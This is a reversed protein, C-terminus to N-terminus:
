IRDMFRVQGKKNVTNQKEEVPKAKPQAYASQLSDTISGKCAKCFRGTLIPAGCKECEIGVQSSESFALREERIWQKIQSVSVDNEESVENVGADKHERIYEKVQYFKEELAASCAACIPKGSGLYNFLKGCTRCNRVEM